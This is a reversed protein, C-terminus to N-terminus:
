SNTVTRTEFETKGLHLLTHHHQGCVRCNRVAFCQSSIHGKRLCNTCLSSKKAAAIRGRVPKAIFVDCNWIKHPEGCIPCRPTFHTVNNTHSQPADQEPCHHQRSAGRDEDVTALTTCNARKRLFDLLHSYSALNKDPLTLEWEHITKPSLKSQLVGIIVVDSTIPHGLNKLMRLHINVTNILNGITEPTETILKPYRLIENWHRLCINHPYHFQKKLIAIANSYDNETSGLSEISRAAKGTLLSRLYYLKEVPELENNQDITARFIDYFSSWNEITGDFTPMRITPLKLSTPETVAISVGSGTPTSAPSLRASGILNTLREVLNHYKQQVNALVTPEEKDVDALEKQVVTIQSWADDIREKYIKLVDVDHGYYKECEEVHHWIVTICKILDDRKQHLSSIESM